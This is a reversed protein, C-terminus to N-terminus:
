SHGWFHAAWNHSKEFDICVVCTTVAKAASAAPLPDAVKRGCFARKTGTCVLCGSHVLPPPTAAGPTRVPLLVITLATM